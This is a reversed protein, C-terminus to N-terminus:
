NKKNKLVYKVIAIKLISIFLIYINTTNIWRNIFYYYSVLIIGLISYYECWYTDIKCLITFCKNGNPFQYINQLDETVIYYCFILSFTQKQIIAVLLYTDSLNNTNINTNINLCDFFLQPISFFITLVIMQIRIARPTMTHIKIISSIFDKFTYNNLNVNNNININVNVNQNNNIFPMDINITDIFLDHRKYNHVNVTM